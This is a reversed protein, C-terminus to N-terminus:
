LTCVSFMNTYPRYVSVFIIIHSGPEHRLLKHPTVISFISKSGRRWLESGFEADTICSGLPVPSSTVSRERHRIHFSREQLSIHFLVHINMKRGFVWRMSFSIDSSELLCHVHCSTGKVNPLLHNLDDHRLQPEFSVWDMRTHKM